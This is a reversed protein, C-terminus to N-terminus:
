VSLVTKQKFAVTSYHDITGNNQSPCQGCIANPLGFNDCFEQIVSDSDDVGIGSDIYPAWQDINPNNFKQLTDKLLGATSCKYIRGQYLLPCTQQCCQNFAQAPDSDWPQMNNYSNKYTKIFTAPRNIQFRINNPGLWRTIGFETVLTWSRSSMIKEIHNELKANHVHVTIKFVINGVSECIDIIDAAHDLLLGNTTFRLQSAPLMKRVGIIWDRWEPNILPEGGIIGFEKIDIRDLWSQIQQQGQSWPVYGAHRLDSYNTCGSCSINCSQTIMTELFPLIM